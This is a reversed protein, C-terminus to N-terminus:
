CKDPHTKSHNQGLKTGGYAPTHTTTAGGNSYADEINKVGPTRLPNVSPAGLMLQTLLAMYYLCKGVQLGQHEQQM